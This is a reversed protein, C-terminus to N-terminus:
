FSALIICFYIELFLKYYLHVCWCRIYKLNNIHKKSLFILVRYWIQKFFSIFLQLIIDLKLNLNFRLLWIPPTTQLFSLVFCSLQQFYLIEQFVILILMDSHIINNEKEFLLSLIDPFGSNVPMQVSHYTVSCYMFIHQFCSVTGSKFIYLAFVNMGYTKMTFTLFASLKDM